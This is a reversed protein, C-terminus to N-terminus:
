CIFAIGNKKPSMECEDSFFVKNWFVIKKKIMKKCWDVRKEKQTQTIAIIKMKKRALLGIEILFRRITRVNVSNHNINENQEIDEATRERDAEIFEKM